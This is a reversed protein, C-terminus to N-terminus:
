LARLKNARTPPQAAVAKARPVGPAKPTPKASPEVPRTSRDRAEVWDVRRFRATAITARTPELVPVGLRRIMALAARGSINLEAAVEPVGIWESETTSESM